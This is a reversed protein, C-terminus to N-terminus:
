RSIKLIFLINAKTLKGEGNNRIQELPLIYSTASKSRQTQVALLMRNLKGLLSHNTCFGVNDQVTLTFVM